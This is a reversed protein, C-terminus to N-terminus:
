LSLITLESFSGEGIGLGFDTFRTEYILLAVRRTYVSMVLGFGFMWVWFKFVMFVAAEAFCMRCATSMVSFCTQASSLYRDSQKPRKRIAITQPRLHELVRTILPYLLATSTTQNLGNQCCKSKVSHTLKFFAKWSSQGGIGGGLTSLYGPFIQPPFFLNPRSLIQGHCNFPRFGGVRGKFM